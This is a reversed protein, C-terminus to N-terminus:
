HVKLERWGKAYFVNLAPVSLDLGGLFKTTGDLIIYFLQRYYTERKKSVGLEATITGCVLNDTINFLKIVM